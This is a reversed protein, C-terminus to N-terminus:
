KPTEALESRVDIRDLAARLGRALKAADDNAWFHMFFLRPEEDLMHNHVAVVEIGNQRLAQTVGNVEEAIMVFDGNIAAKGGGTPQFNIANATGMSPPVDIGHARVNKSRPISYKYVGGSAQGKYGMIKDLEQGDLGLTEAPQKASSNPQAPTASQALASRVVQALEMPKGHGSFHMFMPLPEARLLHHHIATVEIGGELLRSMVPNLEQQTLVLDGMMVADNGVQKFAIWSGLAFGPKIEIGDATVKLDSRPFSVKYVDGTEMTGANGLAEAVAKTWDPTQAHSTASLTIITALGILSSRLFM